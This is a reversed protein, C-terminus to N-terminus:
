NRTIRIRLVVCNIKENALKILEIISERVSISQFYSPSNYPAM